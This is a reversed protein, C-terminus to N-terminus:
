TPLDRTIVVRNRQAKLITDGFHIKAENAAITEMRM